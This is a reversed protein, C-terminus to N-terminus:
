QPQSSFLVNWFTLGERAAAKLVFLNELSKGTVSIVQYSIKLHNIIELIGILMLSPLATLIFLGGDGRTNSNPM